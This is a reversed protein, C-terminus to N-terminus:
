IAENEVRVVYNRKFIERIGVYSEICLIDSQLQTGTNDMEAKLFPFDYYNGNHAVLCVPSPLFPLQQDLGWHM